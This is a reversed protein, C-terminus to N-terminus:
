GIMEMPVLRLVDDVSPAPVHQNAHVIGQGAFLLIELAVDGDMHVPPCVRHRGARLDAQCRTLADMDLLPQIVVELHLRPAPRHKQPLDALAIVVGM